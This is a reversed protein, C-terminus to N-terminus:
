QQTGKSNTGPLKDDEGDQRKKGSVSRPTRFSGSQYDWSKGQDHTVFLRYYYVTGKTLGGLKFQNMGTTVKQQPTASQWTREPRFM